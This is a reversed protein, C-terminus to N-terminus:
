TLFPCLLEQVRSSCFMRIVKMNWSITGWIIIIVLGINVNTERQKQCGLRRQIDYSGIYNLLLITM